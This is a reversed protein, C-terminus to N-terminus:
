RSESPTATPQPGFLIRIGAPSVAEAPSMSVKEKKEARHEWKSGNRHFIYAVKREGVLQEAKKGFGSSQFRAEFAFSRTADNFVPGVSYEAEFEEPNCASNLVRCEDASLNEKLDKKYAERIPDPDFPFIQETQDSRLDYLDLQLPHTVAFHIQSRRILLWRDSIAGEVWGYLIRKVRLQPTLLITCGASPNIHTELAFLDGFRQASLVSGLCNADLSLGLHVTPRLSAISWRRTRKEYLRVWLPGNLSESKDSVVYYAILYQSTDNLTSFGTIKEALAAKPLNGPPIEDLALTKALTPSKTQAALTGALLIPVLLRFNRM